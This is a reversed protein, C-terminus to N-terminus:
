RNIIFIEHIGNQINGDIQIENGSSGWSWFLIKNNSIGTIEIYHNSKLSSEIKKTEDNYYALGIVFYQAYNISHLDRNTPFDDTTCSAGIFNTSFTKIFQPYIFSTIDSKGEFPNFVCSLNNANTIAGQIIADVSNMGVRKLDELTGKKMVDPISLTMNKYIFKGTEYLSIAANAYLDPRLEAM